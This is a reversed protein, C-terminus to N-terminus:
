QDLPQTNQALSLVPSSAVPETFKPLRSFHFPTAYSGFPRKILNWLEKPLNTPNKQFPSMDEVWEATLTLHPTIKNKTLTRVFTDMRDTLICPGLEITNM